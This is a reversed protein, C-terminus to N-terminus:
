TRNMHPVIKVSNVLMTKLGKTGYCLTAQKTSSWNLTTTKIIYIMIIILQCGASIFYPLYAPIKIQNKFYVKIMCEPQTQYQSAWDPKIINRM